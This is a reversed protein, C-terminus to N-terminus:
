QIQYWRQRSNSRSSGNRSGDRIAPREQDVWRKCLGVDAEVVDSEVSRGVKDRKTWGSERDDSASERCSATSPNM